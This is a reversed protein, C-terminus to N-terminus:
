EKVFVQDALVTLNGEADRKAKGHVVVMNLEQVGLLKRADEAVTLDDKTFKITAINHKVQNQECCYDWPTPCGEEKSCHPVKPDVITFAAVGDIFPKGSGGIRGVLVVDEEDKAAEKAQGVGMAGAPETKLVFPSDFNPQVKAPTAAQSGCGAMGLFFLGLALVPYRTMIM